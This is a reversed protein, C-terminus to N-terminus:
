LASRVHVEGFPIDQLNGESTRIILSGDPELGILEGTLPEQQDKMIQIQEGRFALSDEWAHIFKNEGLDNRWKMLALLIEKLLEVRDLPHGLETEISTPPFLMGKIHPTSSILVNVGMGLVSANLLDGSWVSEVLIGAVKRGNILIDNPWKIKPSLELTRLSDALALAGLGTIRAPFTLEAASPRLILSFALASGAPTIWKRNSRGRGATQEDALTLSLDPAGQSSWTLAEDNTSGISNFYRLGGLPLSSFAKQLQVANM